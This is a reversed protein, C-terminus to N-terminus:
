ELSMDAYAARSRTIQLDCGIDFPQAVRTEQVAHCQNFGFFAFNFVIGEPLEFQRRHQLFVNV